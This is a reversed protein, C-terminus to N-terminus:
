PSSASLVFFKFKSKYVLFSLRLLLPSSTSPHSSVIFSSYNTPSSLILPFLSKLCKPIAILFFYDGLFIGVELSFRAYISRPRFFSTFICIGFSGRFISTTLVITIAGKVSLFLILCPTLATFISKFKTSYNFPLFLKALSALFASFHSSLSSNHSCLIPRMSLFWFL